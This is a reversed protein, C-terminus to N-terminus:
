PPAVVPRNESQWDRPVTATVEDAVDSVAAAPVIAAPDERRREPSPPPLISRGELAEVLLAAALSPM